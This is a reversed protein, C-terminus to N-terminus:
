CGGEHTGRSVIGLDQRVGDPWHITVPIARELAFSLRLRRAPLVEWQVEAMQDGACARGAARPLPGPHPRLVLSRYGPLGPQVGLVCALFEYLPSASWAHCDSRAEPAPIEPFTTFNWRLVDRWKELQTWFLDYCGCAEWARFLYFAYYLTAPSLDARTAITHGLARAADGAIAGALIAMANTHQSLHHTGPIDVYLGLGADFARANVARVSAAHRAEFVAAEADPAGAERHLWAASRCAVAYLLSDLTVPQGTNRHPCGRPWGAVWDHFGWYPLPGILGDDQRRREFWDLVARVGPLWARLQATDGFCRHYDEIMLVWYLSFGPIVQTWNSPYRSQTIGEPLRSADFQQIAQRALRGDGTAWFSILAQIRTDGVYQLQEYYPCDEYHEHACLTATRWAIEWIRALSPDGGGAFSARLDFPYMCSQLALADIRIPGAAPAEVHLELFRFTRYWFPEFTAPRPAVRVLDSYGAVVGSARDRKIGDTYLSESYTLRVCGGAPGRVTLQPFATTLHGVDLTLTATTGAPISLPGCAGDTGAALAARADEMALGQAQAVRALPQPAHRLLPIERAQLWWRSHPDAAPPASQPVWLAVADVWGPADADRAHQWDPEERAADFEEMPPVVSHRARNDAMVDRHARADDRRCRWGDPTALTGALSDGHWVGGDVLWGGERHMEAIVGWTNGAAGHPPFIVVRAALVHPGPTLPEDYSEVQYHQPDGRCPGRGLLRGDLYLTYRHDATVRVRLQASPDTVTFARRFLLYGATGLPLEPHWCWRCPPSFVLASM